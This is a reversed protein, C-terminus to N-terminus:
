KERLKGAKALKKIHEDLEVHSMDALSKGSIKDKGLGNAHDHPLKSKQKGFDVLHSHKKVFEAVVSKVSEEDVKKTEPHYVIKDTDVFSFYEDAKLKGGLQKQFASLKISETISSELQTRNKKEEALQREKEEALAKWENQQKLKEENTLKDREEIEKLKAKLAKVEDVTRSYTEYAVQNKTEDAKGGAQQNDAGGVNDKSM